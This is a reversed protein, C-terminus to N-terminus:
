FLRIKFFINKQKEVGYLFMLHSSNLFFKVFLLKKSIILIAFFAM